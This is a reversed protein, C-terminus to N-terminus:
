QNGQKHIPKFVEKLSEIRKDKVQNVQKNKPVWTVRRLDTIKFDKVGQNAIFQNEITEM